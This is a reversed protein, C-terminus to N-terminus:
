IMPNAEILRIWHDWRCNIIKLIPPTSWIKSAFDINDLFHILKKYLIIIENPNLSNKQGVRGIKLM